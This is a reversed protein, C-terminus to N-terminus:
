PKIRRAHIHGTATVTGSAFLASAILYVNWPFTLIVRRHPLLLAHANAFTAYQNQFTGFGDFTNDTTSSGVTGRTMNGGSPSYYVIGNIEWEGVGLSVSTITKSTNNVLSVPSAQTADVYDLSLADALLSATHKVGEPRHIKSLAATLNSKTAM